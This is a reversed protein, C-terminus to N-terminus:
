CFSLRSSVAHSCIISMGNGFPGPRTITLSDPEFPTRDIAKLVRHEKCILTCEGSFICDIHMIQVHPRQLIRMCFKFSIKLMANSYVYKNLTKVPLVALIIPLHEM